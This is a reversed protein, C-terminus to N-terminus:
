RGPGPAAAPSTQRCLLTLDGVFAEAAEVPLAYELTARGYLEVASLWRSAFAQACDPLSALALALAEQRRDYTDDGMPTGGRMRDLARRRLQRVREVSVGLSSAAEEYSWGGMVVMRVVDRGRADLRRLLAEAQDALEARLAPDYGRRAALAGADLGSTRGARGREKRWWRRVRRRVGYMLFVGLLRDQEAPELHAVRDRRFFPLCEALAYLGASELEEPDHYHRGYHAAVAKPIGLLRPTLPAQDM